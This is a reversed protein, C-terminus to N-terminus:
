LLFIVNNLIDKKNAYLCRFIPIMTIQNGKLMKYRCLSGRESLEGYEVAMKRYYGLISSGFM